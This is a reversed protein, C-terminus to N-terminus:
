RLSPNLSPGAAREAQPRPLPHPWHCIDVISMVNVLFWRICDPVPEVEQLKGTTLAHSYSGTDPIWSVEELDFMLPPYLARIRGTYYHRVTRILVNEGVRLGFMMHDNAMENEELFDHLMEAAAPDALLQDLLMFGAQTYADTM